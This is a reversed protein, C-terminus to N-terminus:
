ISSLSKMESCLLDLLTYGSDYASIATQQDFKATPIDPQIFKNNKTKSWM